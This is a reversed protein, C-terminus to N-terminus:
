SRAPPDHDGSRDILLTDDTGGTVAEAALRADGVGDGATDFRVVRHVIRTMGGDKDL